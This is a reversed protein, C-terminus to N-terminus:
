NQVRLLRFIHKLFPVFGLTEFRKFVETKIFVPNLFYLKGYRRTFKIYMFTKNLFYYAKLMMERDMKDTRAVPEWDKLRIPSPCWKSWDRTLIW